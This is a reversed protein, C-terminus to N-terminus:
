EQLEVESCVRDKGNKKAQYMLKDVRQVFAKTDEPPKYQSLGISLTLHVEQDPVPLFTEKKFETRIREATVVGEVSTTMPLLITFEEGGYRYAIDTERLCKKIVQGLRRLVRDGELHGYADNLSKFNDLDLLLLTLPQEYRTSREIEIKLQFYFHRSNYLSTLEDIISLERFRKESDKLAEEARKRETINQGQAITAIPTQGDPKFLTASNWLVTRISEDRHKIKIEVIDLREGTLTKRILAMSDDVLDLPFLIKLSQGIVEAESLGTLLEFAHNFRTIRFQPDWVIIPANAYNILNELYANTQQLAEAARKRETIDQMVGYVINNEKDYQAISHIDIIKGDNPRSIKIDLSYPIDKTILDNLAKNMIDIYEPLTFKRVNEFSIIDEEVGYIIKAGVSGTFEKTNLMLKWNGIKAVKEARALRFESEQLEEQNKQLNYFLLSYPNELGTVIIARYILYFSFIKFFHGILNSLGYVSIYFTFALESVITCLISWAILRLIMPDFKDRRRYLMILSCILFFCIVYESVVKFATLGTGQIYCDPFLVDFFVDALLLLTVSLYFGFVAAPNLKRDIFLPAVLFSISQLYRAIIWLQTPLNADYGIFIGMGKYALTHVFDILGAFLFAISIFLVYNNKTLHRTNWAIMFLCIAIVISFSEAVIHFLIYNYLSTLYLMGCLM